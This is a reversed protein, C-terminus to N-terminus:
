GEHYENTENLGDGMCVDWEAIEANREEDAAAEEFDRALQRKKEEIGQEVLHSVFKSIERKPTYLHLERILKEPMTITISVKRM